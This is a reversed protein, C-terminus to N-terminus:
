CSFLVQLCNHYPTRVMFNKNEMDGVTRLMRYTLDLERKKPDKEEM